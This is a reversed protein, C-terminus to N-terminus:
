VLPVFRMVENERYPIKGIQLEGQAKWERWWYESFDRVTQPQGTGINKVLPKGSDVKDFTLATVLYNAVDEVAVFDRIQEGKTMAYNDGCIAADRLSPWLNEQYQGIGFASFIRYYALKIKKDRALGYAAVFSAAKSSAYAGSPELPADPPIFDYRLGSEGYEAFTGVVLIKHVGNNITHEFLRITNTVNETFCLDWSSPQPSVGASAFHVLTDCSQLYSTYDDSLDGEIWLPEKVLPIRAQSGHRRLAVIKYNNQMAAKIFHGGIFGTGGTVFLKM